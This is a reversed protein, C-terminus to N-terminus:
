TQFITQCYRLTADIEDHLPKYLTFGTKKLRDIRYDLPPPLQEPKTPEPLYLSPTYELVASCREIITNVLDIIQISCEGGVNFIRDPYTPDIQELLHVVARSVDTLTVFDRYQLGSSRLELKKATAAQRCLDNAILTWRDVHDLAPVGFGNSLRIILGELKGKAHEALIFHEAALHTIAYPHVPQPVTDETITGTLPGYIHATSFYVFKNVKAREAAQLLKMTGLTNIAVAQEPNALSEIENVAAMHIIIDVSECARDLDDESLLNMPEITGRKLWSPPSIDKRRTGIKVTYETTQEMYQAIRGGVYGLGGTILVTKSM